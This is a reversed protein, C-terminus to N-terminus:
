RVVLLRTTAEEAGIRLRFYLAGPRAPAHEAARGDWAISVRGPPLVGLDLNRLFRGAVDYIELTGAGGRGSSAEITAAGRTPNPFAGYFALRGVRPSVRVVTLEAAFSVRGRFDVAGVRYSHALDAAPERDLWENERRVPLGQAAREFREGAVSREVLFSAVDAEPTASWSLLIGEELNAASLGSLVLPVPTEREVITLDVPSDGVLFTHPNGPSVPDEVLLLDLTFNPVFLDGLADVRPNGYFDLSPLLANSGDHVLALTSTDYSWIESGFALTTVNLYALSAPGLAAGGPFAAIELTDAPSDSAPDIVHVSGTTSSFDGTCVVHIAGSSSAFCEQPNTGVPVKALLSLDGVDFVSVSGAGYQFTQFDFGTNAVYLKGSAICMGEPAIGTPASAGLTFTALDIEHVRDTLLGTVFARSGAIEITWPNTGPPLEITAVVTESELDFVTVDDSGSNVIFALSGDPDKEIRNPIEGIPGLGGSVQGEDLDVRTIRSDGAGIVYAIRSAASADCLSFFSLALAASLQQLTGPAV